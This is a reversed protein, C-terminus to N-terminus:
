AIVVNLDTLGDVHGQLVDGRQVKGVHEPTGTYILDGPLLRMYRSLEAIVEELNWIMQAIDSSQRLEGNVKLWIAGQQMAGAAAAPTIAGCPASQDFGKGMDWPRGAKKAQAQLDRRTMDLGVAYGFVLRGAEAVKVNSGGAGIAAVLEIEHELRETLPPYALRAGDPVIADAPKQFFFPSERDPDAGMELAHARYNRGVCYIRRVPFHTGDVVPVTIQPVTFMTMMSDKQAGCRSAGGNIGSSKGHHLEEVGGVDM